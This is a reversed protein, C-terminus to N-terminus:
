VEHVQKHLGEQERGKDTKADAKGRMHKDYLRGVLGLTSLLCVAGLTAYFGMTGPEVVYALPVLTTAIGFCSYAEKGKIKEFISKQIDNMM